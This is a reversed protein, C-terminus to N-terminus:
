SGIGASKGSSNRRPAPSIWTLPRLTLGRFNAPTYGLAITLGAQPDLDGLLVRKGKEALAAGLSACTTTKGVGGKQNAVTFIYAM